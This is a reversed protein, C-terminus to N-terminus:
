GYGRGNREAFRRRKERRSRKQRRRRSRRSERCFNLNNILIGEFDEEMDFGKDLEKKEETKGEEEEEGMEEGKNGEIQEEHTILDSIDNKGQGEGLGLGEAEQILQQNENKGEETETEEHICFGNKLLGCFVASFLHSCKSLSHLYNLGHLLTKVSFTHMVLLLKRAKEYAFSQKNQIPKLITEEFQFPLNLMCVETIHTEEAEFLGKTPDIVKNSIKEMLAEITKEVASESKNDFPVTSISLFEPIKQNLIWSIREIQLISSKYKERGEEKLIAVTQTLEKLIQQLNLSFEEVYAQDFGFTISQKTKFLLTAKWVGLYASLQSGIKSEDAQIYSTHIYHLQEIIESASFCLTTCESILNPIRENVVINKSTPNPFHMFLKWLKKIQNSLTTVEASYKAMLIFLNFSFGKMADVEYPTLHQHFSPLGFIVNVNDATKFYYKTLKQLKEQLKEKEIASYKLANFVIKSDFHTKKYIEGEALLLKYRSCVNEGKLKKFLDVLARRRIAKSETEKVFEIRSYADRVMEELMNNENENQNEKNMEQHAEYVLETTDPKLNFVYTESLITTERYHTLITTSFPQKLVDQFNKIIRILQKHNHSLCSCM